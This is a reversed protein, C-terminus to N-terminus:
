ANLLGYLAEDLIQGINERNVQQYLRSDIQVNPGDSCNGFCHDGRFEVKEELQNRTIYSRIAAILDHNGRAFCSSGLCLLIKVKHLM